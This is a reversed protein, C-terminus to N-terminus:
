LSSLIMGPLFNLGLFFAFQLFLLLSAVKNESEIQLHQFLYNFAFSFAFWATYNQLPVVQNKWYWFDCWPAVQEILFDLTVMIVSALAARAFANSLVSSRSTFRTVFVSSSYSLLLWNVGIILPTEALKVGLNEGYFYSGFIKGTSVGIAEITFGSCLVIASYAVFRTTLVGHNWGLLFLSILLNAPTLRLLDAGGGLYTGFLGVSYLIVLIIISLRVKNLTM